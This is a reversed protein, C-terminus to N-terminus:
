NAPNNFDAASGTGGQAQRKMLLLNRKYFEKANAFDGFTYYANAVSYPDTIDINYPSSKYYFDSVGYVNNFMKKLESESPMKQGEELESQVGAAYINFEEDYTRLNDLESPDMDARIIDIIGKRYLPMSEEIQTTAAYDSLAQSAYAPVIANPNALAAEPGLQSIQQLQQNIQNVKDSVEMLGQQSVESTLAIDEATASGIKIGNVYLGDKRREVGAGTGTGTGSGTTQKAKYQKLGDANVKSIHNMINDLIMDKIEGQKTPDSMMDDPVEMLKFGDFLDDNLLSSIMEPGGKDIANSFQARILDYSPKNKSLDLGTIGKSYVSQAQKLVNLSFTSDKLFYKSIESHDLDGYQTRYTFRGDGGIIGSYNKNVFIEDLAAIRTPDMGKSINSRNQVYEETLKQLDKLKTNFGALSNKSNEMVSMLQLYEPTGTRGENQITKMLRAADAYRQRMGTVGFQIAERWPAPTKEAAFQEPLDELKTQVSLDVSQRLQDRERQRRYRDYERLRSRKPDGITIVPNKYAQATQGLVNYVSTNVGKM